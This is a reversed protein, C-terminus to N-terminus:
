PRESRLWRWTTVQEPRRSAVAAARIADKSTPRCDATIGPFPNIKSSAEDQVGCEVPWALLMTFQQDPADQQAELAYYGFRREASEKADDLWSLEAVMSNRTAFLAGLRQSQGKGDSLILDRGSSRSIIWVACEPWESESRNSDFDCEADTSIWLGDKPALVSRDEDSFM